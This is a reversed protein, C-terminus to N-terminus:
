RASWGGVLGVHLHLGNRFLQLHVLLNARPLYTEDTRVAGLDADDLGPVSDAHRALFVQIEYQYTLLRLGGHGLQHIVALVTEFELLLGLLRALAGALLLHLRDLEADLDVLVVVHGLDVVDAPEELSTVLDLHGDHEATSFAGVGFQTLADEVAYGGIDVLQGDYVGSRGDGAHVHVHDQAM